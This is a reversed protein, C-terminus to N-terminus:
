DYAGPFWLIKDVHPTPQIRRLIIMTRNADDGIPQTRLLNGIRLWLEIVDGIVDVLSAWYRRELMTVFSGPPRDQGVDM